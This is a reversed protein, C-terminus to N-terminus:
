PRCRSTTVGDLSMMSEQTPITAGNSTRWKRHTMTSFNNVGFRATLIDSFDFSLGLDLYYENGVKPVALIPDPYGFYASGLVAGSDTGEIWRWGLRMGLPGSSYHVNGSVRNEAFTDSEDAGWCPWGYYGACDLVATVVNEQVNYSLLHTWYIDVAMDAGLGGIGFSGPLDTRYDIQFDIGTTETLGRNSTLNIDPCRQRDRRARYQRLVRQGNVPDFCILLSDLGGITDELEFDFYDVAVSLNPLSSLTLVFGATWTDGTEPGLDLNGGDLFRRSIRPQRSCVSRTQRCDRRLASTPTVPAWPDASASCPDYTIAWTYLSQELFM